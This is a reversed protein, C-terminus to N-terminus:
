EMIRFDGLQKATTSYLRIDKVDLYDAFKKIGRNLAEEFDKSLSIGKEWWWNKIILTNNQKDLVPEFRAIFCDGYLVPLVYYGYKREKVPKYVEWVYDFDFLEKILDRDWLLNDLPALFSVEPSLEDYKLIKEMLEKEDSRIFFPYNVGEIEIEEIENLKLLTEVAKNREDSKFGHIGLWASGSRNWLLGIGGIRRKLHWRYYKKLTSNPDATKLLEPSLHKNVFDYVKRTGVKHHIILEGWNYMSELAARSIRTPAWSWDIITDHSLDISSLPGKKHIEERIQPLIKIIDEGNEKVRKLARKRRREFYPWDTTLYISMNKDWGDLLKREQYLLEQIMQPNYNSIRSQLVLDPNIGVKNLPDFQICGVRQIYNYIGEKGCSGYPPLLGQYTLLFLRAQKKTIKM